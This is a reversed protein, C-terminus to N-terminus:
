GCLDEKTNKKWFLGSEDANFVQDPTYSNAAIIEALKEPYEKAANVDGSALEGKLKLNHLSHRQKFREFWGHSASFSPKQKEASSTSPLQNKIKAYIRLAKNTIANTDIPIRKLTQDEIWIILAKEMTEIVIDRVYSTTSYSTGSGSAVSKRISSENKKITRITAENMSYLKAVEMVREGKSLQDLIKIKTELSIVKRKEQKKKSEKSM